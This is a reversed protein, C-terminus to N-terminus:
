KHEELYTQLIISAAIKDVNGKKKRKSKPMGGAIMVEMAAQSTHSEDVTDVPISPIENKLVQIFGQIGKTSDTPQGAAGLAMGVVFREVPEQSVYAKLWQVIESSDITTLPNAVMQLPDTVAVGCRRKGYDIALLRAM